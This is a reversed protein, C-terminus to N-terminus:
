RCHDCNPEGITLLDKLGVFLTKFQQSTVGTELVAELQGAAVLLRMKAKSISMRIDMTENIIGKTGMKKPAKVAAEATM